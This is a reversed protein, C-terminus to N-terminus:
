AAKEKQRHRSTSRSRAKSRRVPNGAADYRSPWIDQPRKDLFQAIVRELAPWQRTLAKYISSAEYGNRESLASLTTGRMRVAAKIQEAHWDQAIPKKNQM